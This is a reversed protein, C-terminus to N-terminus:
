QFQKSLFAWLTVTIIFLACLKQAEDRGTHSDPLCAYIIFSMIFLWYLITISTASTTKSKCLNSIFLHLLIIIVIFVAFFYVRHHRFLWTLTDDDDPQDEMHTLDHMFGRFTKKICQLTHSYDHIRCKSDHEKKVVDNGNIEKLVVTQQSDHLDDINKKFRASQQPQPSQQTQPPQQTQPSQQVQPPQQTQPSQQVQPPQQTQPSQQVQPPQPKIGGVFNEVVVNENRDSPIRSPIDVGIAVPQKVSTIPVPSMPDELWGKSQGGRSMTASMYTADYPMYGFCKNSLPQPTNLCDYMNLIESPGYERDGYTEEINVSPLIPHTDVFPSAMPFCGREDGMVYENDVKQLSPYIFGTGYPPPWTPYSKCPAQLCGNQKAEEFQQQDFPVNMAAATQIQENITTGWPGHQSQQFSPYQDSNEFTSSAASASM